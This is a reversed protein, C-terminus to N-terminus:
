ARHVEAGSRIWAGKKELASVIAAFAEEVERDTLTREPSRFELAYALSSRGAHEGDRFKYVDFLKISQLLGGGAARIVAALDVHRMGPPVIVALDRKSAPFRPVEQYRRMGPAAQMVAGLDLIAAWAPRELGMQRALSPAVEGM